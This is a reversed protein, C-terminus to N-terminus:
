FLRAKAEWVEKVPKGEIYAEISQKLNLLWLERLGKNYTLRRM